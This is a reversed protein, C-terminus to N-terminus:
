VGMAAQKMEQWVEDPKCEVKVAGDTQIQLRCRFGDLEPDAQIYESVDLKFAGYDDTKLEGILNTKEQLIFSLVHGDVNEMGLRFEIPAKGTESGWTVLETFGAPGSFGLTTWIRDQGNIPIKSGEALILAGRSVCEKLVPKGRDDVIYAFDEALGRLEAEVKPYLSSQGALLLIDVKGGPVNAQRLLPGLAEKLSEIKGNFIRAVEEPAIEIHREYDGHQLEIKKEFYSEIVRERRKQQDAIAYRRAISDIEEIAGHDLLGLVELPSLSAKTNTM